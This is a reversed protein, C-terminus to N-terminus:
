RSTWFEGEFCAIYKANSVDKLMAWKAVISTSASIASDNIMTESGPEDKRNPSPKALENRLSPPTEGGELVVWQARYTKKIHSFIHVIDGVPEIQKIHLADKREINKNRNNLPLVTSLLLHSLLENPLKELAQPSM